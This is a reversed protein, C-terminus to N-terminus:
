LVGGSAPPPKSQPTEVWSMMMTIAEDRTFGVELAAYFFGAVGRMINRTEASPEIRIHQQIGDDMNNDTMTNGRKSVTRTTFSKLMEDLTQPHIEWPCQGLKKNYFPKKPSM